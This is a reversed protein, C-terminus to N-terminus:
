DRLVAMSLFPKLKLLCCLKFFVGDSHIIIAEKGCAAEEILEALQTEAEKLYVQHIFPKRCSSIERIYGRSLFSL